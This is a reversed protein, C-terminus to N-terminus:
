SVIGLQPQLLNGLANEILKGADALLAFGREQFLEAGDLAQAQRCQLLDGCHRAEAAFRRRFQLRKQLRAANRCLGFQMTPVVSPLIKTTRPPAMPSKM